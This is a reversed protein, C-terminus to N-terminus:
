QQPKQDVNLPAAVGRFECLLLFRMFHSWPDARQFFSEAFEENLSRERNTSVGHSAWIAEDMEMRSVMDLIPLM